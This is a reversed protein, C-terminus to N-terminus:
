HHYPVTIAVLVSPTLQQHGHNHHNITVNTLIHLLPSHDHHTTVEMGVMTYLGSVVTKMEKLQNLKLM